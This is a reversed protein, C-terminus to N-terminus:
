QVVHKKVRNTHFDEGCVCLYDEFLEDGVRIDQIAELQHNSNVAINPSSSHNMLMQLPYTTMPDRPVFVFDKCSYDPSCVYDQMMNIVGPEVENEFAWELTQWSGSIGKCPAIITGKPINCVAFVGVGHVRSAGPRAFTKWLSAM